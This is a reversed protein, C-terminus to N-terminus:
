LFLEELIDEILFEEFGESLLQEKIFHRSNNNKKLEVVKNAVIEFTKYSSIIRLLIFLSFLLSGLSLLGFVINLNM